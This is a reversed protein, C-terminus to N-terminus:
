MNRLTDPLIGKSLENKINRWSGSINKWGPPVTSRTSNIYWHDDEFDSKKCIIRKGNWYEDNMKGISGTVIVEQDQLDVVLQEDFVPTLDFHKM